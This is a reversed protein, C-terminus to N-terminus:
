YPADAGFREDLSAQQSTQAAPATAVPASQPASQQSRSRIWGEVRQMRDVLDTVQGQLENIRQTSGSGSKGKRSLTFSLGHKESKFPVVMLEIPEPGVPLDEFSQLKKDSIVEGTARCAHIEYITYDEQRKNVGQYGVTCSTIILKVPKGKQEAM